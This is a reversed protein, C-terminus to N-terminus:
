WACRCLTTGAYDNVTKDDGDVLTVELSDQTFGEREAKLQYTGAAVGEFQVTSSNSLASFSQGTLPPKLTVGSLGNGSM